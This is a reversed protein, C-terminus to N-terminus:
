GNIGRTDKAFQAFESERFKQFLPHQLLQDNIKKQEASEKSSPGDGDELLRSAMDTIAKISDSIDGGGGMMAGVIQALSPLAMAQVQLQQALSINDQYNIEM